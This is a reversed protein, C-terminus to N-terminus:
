HAEPGERTVTQAGLNVNPQDTRIFRESASVVWHAMSVHNISSVLSVFARPSLAAMLSHSQLGRFRLRFSQARVEVGRQSRCALSWRGM